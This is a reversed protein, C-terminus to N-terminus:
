RKRVETHGCEKDYTANLGYIVAHRADPEGNYLPMELRTDPGLHIDSLCQATWVMVFYHAPVCKGGAFDPRWTENPQCSDHAPEGDRAPTYIGEYDRAWVNKSTTTVSVQQSALLAFLLLTLKM